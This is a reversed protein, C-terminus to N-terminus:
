RWPHQTVHLDTFSAIATFDRDLHWVPLDERIALAAILCDISSRITVGRRRGSRYIDAACLYDDLSVVSPRCPLALISSKLQEFSTKSTLGQLLEQVIPPSVALQFLHEDQLKFAPKKSLLNIWISTDVLYM